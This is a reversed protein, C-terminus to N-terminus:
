DVERLHRMREAHEARERADHRHKYYWNVLFGAVGLVIGILVAFESSLLWGSITMGAGTYTAKSGAAAITADLTQAAADHGAHKLDTM